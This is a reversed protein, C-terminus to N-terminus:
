RKEGILVMNTVPIDLEILSGNTGKSYLAVTGKFRNEVVWPNAYALSGKMPEGLNEVISFGAKQVAQKWEDFSWFTFEENLESNWNDTYDKTNMFEAADKMSLVFYEVGDVTEQRYQIKTEEGRKGKSRMDALFDEAFRLFRSYAQNSSTIAFVIDDLTEEGEFPPSGGLFALQSVPIGLNQALYMEQFRTNVLHRGPFLIHM